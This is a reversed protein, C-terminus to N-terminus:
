KDQPKYFSTVGLCVGKLSGQEKSAKDLIEAIVADESDVGYFQFIKKLNEHPKEVLDEYKVLICRKAKELEPLWKLVDTMAEIYQESIRRVNHTGGFLEEAIEQESMHSASAIADYPHRLMVVFKAQPFTHALRGIWRTLWPHKLVVVSKGTKKCLRTYFDEAFVRVSNFYMRHVINADLGMEKEYGDYDLFIDDILKFIHNPEQVDTEIAPHTRCLGMTLTTGTRAFGLIFHIPIKNM